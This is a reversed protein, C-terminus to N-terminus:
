IGNYVLEADAGSFTWVSNNALSDLRIGFLKGSITADVYQDQGLVYQQPEDWTVAENVEDHGGLTITLVTGIPGKIRPWVRTLFKSSSMDPPQDSRMAVALGTREVYGVAGSKALSDVFYMDDAKLGLLKDMFPHATTQGWPYLWEAWTYPITAWTEAGAGAIDLAGAAIYNYNQIARRTVTKDMWNYVIATDAGTNASTSSRWCFWVENLQKYRVMFAKAIQEQSLKGLIKKMRKDVVSVAEQGDHLMLDSGTFVLHHNVSAEVVCNPTPMGFDSFIQFFRFIFQGGIHQMGWVSDEKYIINIDRLPLCDVCAGQSEALNWEGADLSPDAEDWSSPVAGPSTIHSWKVMQPYRVASKTVDLAILYQKFARLSKAKMGSPWNALDILPDGVDPALWAQPKDVGNNLITVGSFNCGTWLDDATGTYDDLV